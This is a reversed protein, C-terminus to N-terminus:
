YGFRMSGLCAHILMKIAANISIKCDTFYDPDSKWPRTDMLQNHEEQDFHFVESEKMVNNRSLFSNLDTEVQM